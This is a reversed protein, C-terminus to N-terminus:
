KAHEYCRLSPSLLPLPWWTQTRVPMFLEVQPHIFNHGTWRMGRVYGNTGLNPVQAPLVKGEEWGKSGKGSALSNRRFSWETKSTQATLGKFASNYGM